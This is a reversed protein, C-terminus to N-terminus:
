LRMMIALHSSGPFLYITLGGVLIFYHYLFLFDKTTYESYSIGTLFFIDLLSRATIYVTLDDILFVYLDAIASNMAPNM